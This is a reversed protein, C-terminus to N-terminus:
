SKSIVLTDNASLYMNTTLDWLDFMGWSDWKLQNILGKTNMIVM